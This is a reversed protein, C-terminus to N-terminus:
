DKPIRKKSARRKESHDVENPWLGIACGARMCACIIDVGVNQPSECTLFDGLLPLEPTDIPTYQYNM